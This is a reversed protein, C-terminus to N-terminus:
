YWCETNELIEVDFDPDFSLRNAERESITLYSVDTTLNTIKYTTM